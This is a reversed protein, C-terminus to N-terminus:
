KTEIENKRVIPVFNCNRVRQPQRNIIVILIYRDFGTNM